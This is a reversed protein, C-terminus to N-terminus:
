GKSRKVESLVLRIQIFYKIQLRCWIQPASKIKARIDSWLIGSRLHLELCVEKETIRLVRSLETTYLPHIIPPELVPLPQSNKEEGGGEYRSQPGGLRKDLPYWPSKGHPAFPGSRSASREGGDVYYYCRYRKDKTNKRHLAYKVFYAAHPTTDTAHNAIRRYTTCPKKQQLQAGRWSPTNPSHLYLEVCEQSSPPSHDAEREPWKVELSLAGAVWQIPAQTPGV